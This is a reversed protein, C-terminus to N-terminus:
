DEANKKSLVKETIGLVGELKDSRAGKSASGNSRDKEERHDRAHTLYSKCQYFVTKNLTDKITVTPTLIIRRDITRKIEIDWPYAM